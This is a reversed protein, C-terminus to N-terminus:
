PADKPKRARKTTTPADDSQASLALVSRAHAEHTRPPPEDTRSALRAFRLRAGSDGRVCAAALECRACAANEAHVDDDVLRPFFAGADWADFLVGLSREYAAAFGEDDPAVAFVRRDDATFRPHLAVYRGGGAAIAYAYAQLQTGARVADLHHQVRTAVRASDGFVKGSKWDTLRQRGDAREARDARFALRRGGPAEVVANVEAGLVLLSPESEDLRRAAAVLELARAAVLADLGPAYRGEERLIRTAHALAHAFAVEPRPWAPAAGVKEEVSELAVDRVPATDALLAHAVSGTARADLRPASTSPDLPPRLQLVRQLYAQWPCRAVNELTTVAIERKTRAGLRARGVAGFFPGLPEPRGPPRDFEAVAASRATAVDHAIPALLEHRTRADSVALALVAEAEASSGDRAALEAHEVLPQPVGDDSEIPGGVVRVREPATVGGVDLLPSPALVEDDADAVLWSLTVAPASALIQAFIASEEEARARKSALDPLVDAIRVRAEDSLLPDERAAAPFVGANLGLVFVHDHAARRASAADVVQVGGGNGGLPEGLDREVRRALAAHFEHADLDFDGLEHALERSARALVDGDRAGLLALVREVRAAHDAPAVQATPDSAHAVCARARGVADDVAARALVRADDRTGDRPESEFDDDHESEDREADDDSARAVRRPLRLAARGGLAAGVDLDALAGLRSAGMARLGVLLALEDRARTEHAALWREVSTERPDALLDLRARTRRGRLALPGRADEASIPIALRAAHTRLSAAYPAIRRAVIAVREPAVGRDLTRRVRRLAERAEADAGRARYADVDCTPSPRDASAAIGFRARLASGYRPASGADDWLVTTAVSAAFAALLDAQVGTADNFGHIWLARCGPATGDRLARAARAYVDSTRAIGLEDLRARAALAARVIASATARASGSLPAREATDTLADRLAEAHEVDLGADLVDTVSAVAAEGYREDRDAFAARAAREVVIAAADAGHAHRVGARAVAEHAVRALTVFRVGVLAGVARAALGAVHERLADSPTVVVLPAALLRPDARVRERDAALRAVLERELAIPGYAHVVVPAPAM